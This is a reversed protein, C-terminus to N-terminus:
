KRSKLRKARICISKNFIGGVYKVSGWLCLDLHQKWMIFAILENCYLVEAVGFLLCPTAKSCIKTYTPLGERRWCLVKNSTPRWTAIIVRSSQKSIVSLKKNMSIHLLFKEWLLWNLNIIYESIKFLM